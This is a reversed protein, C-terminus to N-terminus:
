GCGGDHGPVKMCPVWNGAADQRMTPKGCLTPIDDDQAPIEPVTTAVLSGLASRVPRDSM